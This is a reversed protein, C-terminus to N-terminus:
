MSAQPVCFLLSHCSWFTSPFSLHFILVLIIDFALSDGKLHLKVCLEHWALSLDQSFSSLARCGVGVALWSALRRPTSTAYRILNSTVNLIEFRAEENTRGQRM